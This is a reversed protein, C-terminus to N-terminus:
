AGRYYYFLVWQLGELYKTLMRTRGEKGEESNIDMKLKVKYYIAKAKM